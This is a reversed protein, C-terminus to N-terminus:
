KEQSKRNAISELSEDDEDELEDHEENLIPLPDILRWHPMLARVSSGLLGCWITWAMYAMSGIAAFAFATGALLTRLVGDKQIRESFQDFTDWLLSTETLLDFREVADPAKQENEASSVVSWDITERDLFELGEYQSEASIVDRSFQSGTQTDHISTISVDPRADTALKKGTILQDV